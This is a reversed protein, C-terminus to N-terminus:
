RVGAMFARLQEMFPRDIQERCSVPLRTLLHRANFEVADSAALARRRLDAEDSRCLALIQGYVMGFRRRPDPEDDYTEDFLGGFTEFGLRRLFGLAGPNGLVLFPHFNAIPKLPKETIRSPVPRMETETVVSFWSDDYEPLEADDTFKPRGDQTRSGAGEGLLIEGLSQLRDLEPRLERALPGFAPDELFATRRAEAGKGKRAQQDFSGLSIHGANWLSDRMVSTLFALKSPRLTLNLSLFRRSRRDARGRYRELRRAHIKPGRVAFSELLARLWYDFVLVRFAPRIGRADCLRLYDAEFLRDQTVYIARDPALGWESLFRHLPEVVGPEAEAGETSADIVLFAQNARLREGVQVPLMERARELSKGLRGPHANALVVLDPDAATADLLPAEAM